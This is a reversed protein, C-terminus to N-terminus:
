DFFVFRGVSLEKFDIYFVELLLILEVKTNKQEMHFKLIGISYSSKPM